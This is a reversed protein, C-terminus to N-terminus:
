AEEIKSFNEVLVFFIEVFELMNKIDLSFLRHVEDRLIKQEEETTKRKEILKSIFDNILDTRGGCWNYIYQAAEKSTREPIIKLLLTPHLYNSAEDKIEQVNMDLPMGCNLQWYKAINQYENSTAQKECLNRIPKIEKVFPLTMKQNLDIQRRIATKMVDTYSNNSGGGSAGFTFLSMNRQTLYCSSQALVAIESDYNFENKIKHGLIEHATKLIKIWDM